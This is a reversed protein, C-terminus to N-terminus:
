SINHSVQALSGVNFIGGKSITLFTQNEPTNPNVIFGKATAIGGTIDVRQNNSSGDFGLMIAANPVNLEGGNLTYYIKPGWAGILCSASYDSEKSISGTVTFTGGNQTIGTLIDRNGNNVFLSEFTVDAHEEVTVQMASPYFHVGEFTLPHVASGEFLGISALNENPRIFDNVAYTGGSFALTSNAVNAPTVNPTAGVVTGGSYTFTKGAETIFDVSRPTTFIVSSAECVPTLDEYGVDFTFPMGYAAIRRYRAVEVTPYLDGVGKKKKFTVAKNEIFGINDLSVGEDFTLTTADATVTNDWVLLINELSTTTTPKLGGDWTIQSWMADASPITGKFQYETSDFAVDRYVADPILVNSHLNAFRISFTDPIEWTTQKLYYTKVVGGVTATVQTQLSKNVGDYTLMFDYLGGAVFAFEHELGDSLAVSETRTPSSAPAVWYENNLTGLFCPGYTVGSTHGAFFSGFDGEGYGGQAGEVGRILAFISKGTTGDYTAPVELRFSLVFDNGTVYKPGVEPWTEDPMQVSVALLVSGMVCMLM